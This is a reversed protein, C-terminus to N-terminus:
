LSRPEITLAPVPAELFVPCALCDEKLYGNPQRKAQWCPLSSKAAQCNEM